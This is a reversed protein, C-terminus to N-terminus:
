GPKFQALKERVGLVKRAYGMEEDSSAGAYNQLAAEVSGTRRIYEKLVLAGVRINTTPEFLALKHTDGGLKDMHYKPIVQMLGQAGFRSESLPNFSSEIAMVSVILLPDVGVDKGVSHASAVLGAVVDDSVRYRNALYASIRAFHAPVVPPSESDAVASPEVVPAAVPESFAAVAQVIRTSARRLWLLRHMPEASEGAGVLAADAGALRTGPTPVPVIQSLAFLGLAILAVHGARFFGQVLHSVLVALPHKPQWM